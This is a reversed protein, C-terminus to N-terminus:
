AKIQKGLELALIWLQKLDSLDRSSRIPEPLLSFNYNFLHLEDTTFPCRSEQVDVVNFNDPYHSIFPNEPFPDAPNNTSHHEHIQGNNYADWDIGYEAVEDPALNDDLPEFLQASPVFGQPGDRLMSFWRLDSPSRTGMGPIQMKHNNWINAWETIDQNLKDLFLYHLLWIHSPLDPNLDGHLELDEFFTKWKAGVGSTFDVWLREVRINHVSRNLPSELM